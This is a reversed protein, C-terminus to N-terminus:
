LHDISNLLHVKHEGGEDIEIINVSANKFQMDMTEEVTKGLLIGLLTKIYAGHSCILITENKHSKFLKELFKQARGRLEVFSEGGEPKFHTPPKGSSERADLYDQKYMGEFIGM